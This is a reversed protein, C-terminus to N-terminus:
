KNSTLMIFVLFFYSIHEFNVVFVGSRRRLCRQRRKRSNENNTKLLYIYIKVVQEMDCNEHENNRPLFNYVTM